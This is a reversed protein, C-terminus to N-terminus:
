GWIVLAYPLSFIIALNEKGHFSRTIRTMFATKILWTLRTTLSFFTSHVARNINDRHGGSQALLASVVLSAVSWLSSIYLAIQASPQTGIAPTSLFSIDVALM